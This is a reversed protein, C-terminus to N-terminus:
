RKASEFNIKDEVSDVDVKVDSFRENADLDSLWHKIASKDKFEVMGSLSAGLYVKYHILNDLRQVSKSFKRISMNYIYDFTWGTTVALSVIYDEFTGSKNGSIKNKYERAKELSDRVEKQVDEDPTELLNQECIIEKIKDFDSSTYVEEGIIFVPKGNEDVRYRKMSEDINEFDEDKLCISLLRDLWFLYPTNDFDNTTAYFIYELYTMSIIKADPITNKDLLLCHAYYQFPIYDKILAPYIHLAKYPVPSDYTTYVNYKM